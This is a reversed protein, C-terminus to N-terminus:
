RREGASERAPTSAVEGPDIGSEDGGEGVEAKGGDGAESPDMGSEGGAEGVEAEGGDGAEGAEEWVTRDVRALLQDVPGSVANLLSRPFLGIWVVCVLLPLLAMLERGNLAVGRAGARLRAGMRLVGIALLAAGLGAVLASEGIEEIGGALVLLIGTFGSLGPLGTMALAAVLFCGALVAGRGEGDQSDHGRSQRMGAILLLAAASLGHSILLVVSGQIGPKNLACIGLMVLGMQSTSVCAILERLEVQALVLLAGYLAGALALWLLFDQFFFLAQPFLGLCFRLLGYGGMNLWVGALLVRGASPAQLQAERLWTHLPALGMRVALGAFFGGLLWKQVGLPLELGSLDSLAFSINGATEQHVHALYLVAVWLLASGSLNHLLMKFLAYTRRAGGWGGILLLLPVLALDCFFCFLFLDLAAFAGVAAGTAALVAAHVGRGQEGNGGALLVLPALLATLAIFPLNLGDAGVHFDIGLAPIWTWRVAWQMGSVAPDFRVCLYLVLLLECGALALGTGRIARALRGPILGVILAGGLPLAICAALLHDM